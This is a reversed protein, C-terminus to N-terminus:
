PVAIKVATIQCLLLRNEELNRLQNAIMAPFGDGMFSHIGPPRAATETLQGTVKRFWHRAGDTEDQWTRITFGAAVLLQLLEESSALFSTEPGDAWPVPYHVPGVPGALLDYIALLGGPKLVRNMERYLLAKEPINMATHQTWVIDFAGDLYPLNLANGRQYTVLHSLRVMEALMKAARCYEETLDIGNVLCGFEDALCRSPGGIGSGVDLVTMGASLEVAHALELTAKRGRIHFEDIPALDVPQLNHLSKGASQLAAIILAGVDQRAYHNNVLTTVVEPDPM